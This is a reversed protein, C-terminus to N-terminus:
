GFRVVATGSTYAGGDAVLCSAAWLVAADPEQAVLSDPVTFTAPGSLAPLAIPAWTVGGDPSRILAVTASFTGTIFINFPSNGIPQYWSAALGRVASTLSATTQQGAINAM